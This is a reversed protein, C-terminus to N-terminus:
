AQAKYVVEPIIMGALRVGVTDGLRLDLSKIFGPNNLTARTIERDDIRIPNLIAVPTVRGTRGTNWEVSLITTEICEQREKLAYAFKPHKSTYGMKEAISHNNVRYVTGDSPYIRELEPDKVTGFGLKSLYQM